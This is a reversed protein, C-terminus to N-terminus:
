VLVKAKVWVSVLDQSHGRGFLHGPCSTNTQRGPAFDHGFVREAPIRYQAMLWRILKASAAEQAPALAETELGVHEIGISNENAGKCHNAREDDPVMQYIKGDRDILYHASVQRGGPNLFENIASNLSGETCHVVIMDIVAGNRSSRNPSRFQTAARPKVNENSSGHGDPVGGSDDEVQEGQASLSGSNVRPIGKAGNLVRYDVRIVGASPDAGLAAFAAKTLDIAAQSNAFKSPGLDILPVTATKSSTRNKVVVLTEIYKLFPIPSGDTKPTGAKDMPLACGLINPDDKTNLGSATRGDDMPDDSGGFHTCKVNEVVLDDGDIRAVFSFSGDGRLISDQPTPSIAGGSVRTAVIPVLQGEVWVDSYSLAKEGLARIKAALANEDAKTAGVPLRHLEVPGTLDETRGRCIMLTFEQGQARGNTLTELEFSALETKRIAAKIEELTREKPLSFENSM